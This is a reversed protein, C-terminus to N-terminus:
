RFNWNRRIGAIRVRVLRSGYPGPLPEQRRGLTSTGIISQNLRNQALGSRTKEFAAWLIVLKVAFDLCSSGFTQHLLFNHVSKYVSVDTM